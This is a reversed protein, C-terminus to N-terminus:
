VSAATVFLRCVIERAMYLSDGVVVLWWLPKGMVTSIVKFGGVWSGLFFYVKSNFEDSVL